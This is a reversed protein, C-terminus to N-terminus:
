FAISATFLHRKSGAIFSPRGTATWILTSTLKLSYQDSGCTTLGQPLGHRDGSSIRDIACQIARSGRVMRMRPQAVPRSLNCCPNQQKQREDDAKQGDGIEGTVSIHSRRDCVADSLHVAFPPSHHYARALLRHVGEVTQIMEVFELSQSGASHHQRSCAEDSGGEDGSLNLFM